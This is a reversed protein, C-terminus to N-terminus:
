RTRELTLDFKQTQGGNINTYLINVMLSNDSQNLVLDAQVLKIRREYLTINQIMRKKLYEIEFFDLPEFLSDYIGVGFLDDLRREGISTLVISRLSQRIADKGKKVVLDGTM